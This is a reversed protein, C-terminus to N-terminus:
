GAHGIGEPAAAARAPAVRGPAAQRAAQARSVASTRVLVEHVHAKVTSVSLQLSRAIEKNSRGESLLRLVQRQRATLEPADSRTRPMASGLRRFLAHAISPPCVLEGSVAGFTAEVLEDLTADAAVYGAAGAEACAIIDASHPSVAFAIVHASAGTSRLEEILDLSGHLSVDLIMVDPGLVGVQERAVRADSAEGVVEIGGNAGLAAVLGQRYLKVEAAVVVRVNRAPFRM